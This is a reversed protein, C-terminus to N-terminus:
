RWYHKLIMMRSSKLPKGHEKDHVDFDGFNFRKFWDQCTRLSPAINGYSSYLANSLSRNRKETRLLNISDGFATTWVRRNLSESVMVYACLFTHGNSM